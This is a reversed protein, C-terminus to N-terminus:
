QKAAMVQSEIAEVGALTRLEIFCEDLIERFKEVDDMAKTDSGIGFFLKGDYSFIATGMGLNYGIPVFPYQAIMRKGNMYMPVQPGPVNTAVTNFVPFPANIVAGIASQLPAPMMGFVAGLMGLGSAMQTANMMGTKQNVATFLHLPNKIDLPIEVPLISILNGLAGRQEKQRLSVPMMFRVLNEKTEVDHMESYRSIAMVLITLVVDNVSGNLNGRIARAEAFSFETWALRREGGCPKNFPLVPAPTAIAPLNGAMHPIAGLMQPNDAFTQTLQLLGTQLETFRNMGEQMAGLLSEMFVQSAEKPKAAEKPEPNPPPPTSKPSIDFLIKMLDVGSIGDVMCHHIKTIMASRNGEINNVIHIEWLPKQRDMVGTLVKGACSMLDNQSIKKKNKIHFIHQSIDFDAAAEWTPHGLNFPDPVVKQLYRPLLHLRDAIHQVVEDFSIQGDFISTGGIHMPSEPKELYLFASDLTSLRHNLDM